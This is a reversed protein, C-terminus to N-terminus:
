PMGSVCNLTKGGPDDDAEVRVGPRTKQISVEWRPASPVTTVKKAVSFATDAFRTRRLVTLADWEVELRTTAAEVM